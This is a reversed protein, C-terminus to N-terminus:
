TRLSGDWGAIAMLWDHLRSWLRDDMSAADLMYQTNSVELIATSCQGINDNIPIVTSPTLLPWYGIFFFSNPTYIYKLRRLMGERILKDEKTDHERGKVVDELIKKVRDYYHKFSEHNGLQSTGLLLGRTALHASFAEDILRIHSPKLLRNSEGRYESLVVSSGIEWLEKQADTRKEIEVTKDEVLKSLRDMEKESVRM